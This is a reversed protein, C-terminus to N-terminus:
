QIPPSLTLERTLEESAQGADWTGSLNLNETISYIVPTSAGWEIVLQGNVFSGTGRFTDEAIQWTMSITESTSDYEMEATGQYRSGDTNIGNVDFSDPLTPLFAQVRYASADESTPQEAKQALVSTGLLPVALLALLAFRM